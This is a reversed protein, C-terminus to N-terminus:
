PSLLFGDRFPRSGAIKGLRKGVEAIRTAPRAYFVGSTTARVPTVCGTRLDTIEAVVRGAAVCEGLHVSYSLLGPVPAVLAESGALPAPACALPPLTATGQVAGLHVLYDHLAGADRAGLERSVDSRGRLELTCSACAHPV